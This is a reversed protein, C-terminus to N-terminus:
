ALMISNKESVEDKLTNGYGSKIQKDFLDEHDFFKVAQFAARRFLDLIANQEHFDTDHQFAVAVLVMGNYYDFGDYDRSERELASEMPILLGVPAGTAVVDRDDWGLINVKSQLKTILGDSAEPFNTQALAQIVASGNGSAQEVSALKRFPVSGNLAVIMEAETTGAPATVTINGKGLGYSSDGAVVTVALPTGVVVAFKCAEGRKGAARTKLLLNGYILAPTGLLINSSM